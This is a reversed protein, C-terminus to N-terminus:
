KEQKKESRFVLIQSQVAKNKLLVYLILFELTGVILYNLLRWLMLQWMPMSYFVALGFTKILVSGILHPIGVSALLRVFYPFRRCLRWLIGSTLGIVAGGVTLIPNIAYGVLVCGILDAVVGVAAGVIPGFLIGALIIPLNEFSFRLINGGPIALYKGCVISIAALLSSIAMVKLSGFVAVGAKGRTKQKSNSNMFFYRRGRLQM